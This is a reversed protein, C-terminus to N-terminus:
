CVRAVQALTNCVSALTTPSEPTPAATPPTQPQSPAQQSAQTPKPKQAPAKSPRKTPSAGGSSPNIPRSVNIPTPSVTNQTSVPIAAHPKPSSKVRIVKHAKRPPKAKTAVQPKHTAVSSPAEKHSLAGSILFGLTVGLLAISAAAAKRAGELNRAKTPGVMQARIANVDYYKAQSKM